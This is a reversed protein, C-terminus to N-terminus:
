FISVCEIVEPYVLTWLYIGSRSLNVRHAALIYDIKLINSNKMNQLFLLLNNKRDKSSPPESLSALIRTKVWQSYGFIELSRM